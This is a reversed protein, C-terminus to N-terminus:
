QFKLIGDDIKKLNFTYLDAFYNQHVKWPSKKGQRPFHHISRKFYSSSFDVLLESELDQPPSPCAQKLDKQDMYSILKAIWQNSLNCKLTWSANTYGFVMYLNPIGSFMCSKYPHLDAPTKEEGDVSIKVGGLFKLQLGTAPIVLDAKLFSGGKLRVGNETFHDIEDTLITAKDSNLSDFFDNDPIYCLRQEWPRYKPTFHPKLDKFKKLAQRVGSFLLKKALLPFRRCFQYFGTMLLINKWRILKHAWPLPLLSHLIKALFDKAPISAIYSPSRQLMTVQAKQALAPVLTVATAGSGIVLINKNEYQYDEKWEQPHIFDGQFNELGNFKPTYGQDYDYYGACMILHRCSLNKKKAEKGEEVTLIWTSDQSSFNSSLVKMGFSIHKLLDFEEATEQIYKLIESGPAIAKGNGWPKFSFGLTYMDSDSRVGPYRFLDWTGGLAERAELIKFSLHPLTSKIHYAMGIGSLGAGVIIIDSTTESM